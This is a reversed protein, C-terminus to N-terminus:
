PTKPSIGDLVALRELVGKLSIDLANRQNNLSDLGKDGSANAADSYTNQFRSNVDNFESKEAKYTGKALKVNKSKGTGFMKQFFNRNKNNKTKASNYNTEASDMETKEKIVSDIDSIAKRIADRSKELASRNDSLASKKNKIETEKATILADIDTGNANDENAQNLAGQKTGLDKMSTTKGDKGTLVQPGLEGLKDSIASYYQALGDASTPKSIGEFEPLSQLLDTMQKNLGGEGTIADQADKRAKLQQDINTAIGLDRKYTANLENQPDNKEVESYAANLKAVAGPEKMSNFDGIASQGKSSLGSATIPRDVIAQQFSIKQKLSFASQTVNSKNNFANSLSNFLEINASNDETNFNNIENQLEGTKALNAKRAKLDDLEKCSADYSKFAADFDSCAKGAAESMTSLSKLNSNQASNATQAKAMMATAAVGVGINMFASIMSAADTGGTNAIGTQNILYNGGVGSTMDNWAQTRFTVMLEEAEIKQRVFIYLKERFGSKMM